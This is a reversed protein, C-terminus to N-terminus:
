KIQGTHHRYDRTASTSTRLTRGPDVPCVDLPYIGHIYERWPTEALKSSGVHLFCAIPTDDVYRRHATDVMTRPYGDICRGFSGEVVHRCIQRMIESWHSDADVADTRSRRACCCQCSNHSWLYLGTHQRVSWDVAEAFDRIDCLRDKEEGRRHGWPNGALGEHDVAASDLGKVSVYYRYCYAYKSLM